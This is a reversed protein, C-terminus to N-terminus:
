GAEPLAHGIAAAQLGAALASVVGSVDPSAQKLMQRVQDQIVTSFETYYRSVPRAKAAKIAPLITKWGIKTEQGVQTGCLPHGTVQGYGTPLSGGGNYASGRTAPFGGVAFLCREAQASTLFNIVKLAQAPHQSSASIALDQGGLV